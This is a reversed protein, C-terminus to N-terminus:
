AKTPLTLHTYSVPLQCDVEIAADIWKQYYGTSSAGASGASVVVLPKNESQVFQKFQKTLAEDSPPDWVYHGTLNLKKPWDPQLPAFEQDFAGLCLDKSFCWQHLFRESQTLGLERQLANVDERVVPDIFFQDAIRYQLSKLIQPMWDGLWMPKIKPADYVSRLIFPSLVVTALPFNYAESALKAGFSLPSAVLLTECQKHREELYAVTQRMTGIAGWRLALKWAETSQHLRDDNGVARLEQESGLDIYELGAQGVNTKFIPNTMIAVHHKRRQLEKGLALFPFVDGASGIPILIVQTKM